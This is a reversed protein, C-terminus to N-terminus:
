MVVNQRNRHCDRVLLDVAVLTAHHCKTSRSSCRSCSRRDRVRDLVTSRWSARLRALRSRHSDCSSMKDIAILIAFSYMSRSSDRSRAPENAVINAVICAPEFAVLTALFELMNSQSSPRLCVFLMTSRSSASSAVLPALSNCTQISQTKRSCVLRQSFFDFFPFLM